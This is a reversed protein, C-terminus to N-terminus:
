RRPRVPLAHTGGRSRCSSPSSGCVLCSASARPDQFEVDRRGPLLKMYGGFAGPLTLGLVAFLFDNVAQSAVTANLTIVSPAVVDPDNVYNQGAREEPNAAEVQLKSSSILENCLLCGSDPTVPRAVSYVDIVEGTNEDHRVKTGIQVGPILYQHVIANFVLRAQMTDAALFLFDCDTFQEAIENDTIDGFIPSFKVKPNAVKAVRRAVNVKKTALRWGLQQVWPISSTVLWSMADWRSAGVIRPLNTLDVKDPDVNIIHGVGLRSLYETLLSGVGGAGIVGVKLTALRHQGADGFLRVQRNYSRQAQPPTPPPTPYLREICTGVIRADTLKIRHDRSLWIDGAVANRAFVLAGVPLGQMIDLLAPYGREHSNLDDDSFWVCDTGGHNHVAFYCLKEDRCYLLKDTIFEARLMRYGRKGPVYDVGDKALFVDRALLRLGAPTKVIGAAIIAGHEDNDGPFLHRFLKESLQKPMVLTCRM